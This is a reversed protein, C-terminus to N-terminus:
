RSSTEASSESDLSAPFFGLREGERAIARFDAADLRAFDALPVDSCAAFLAAASGVAGPQREAEILDRVLPRRLTLRDTESGRVQISRILRVGFRGSRRADEDSTAASKDKM